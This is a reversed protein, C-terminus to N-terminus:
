RYQTGGFSRRIDDLIAQRVELSLQDRGRKRLENVAPAIYGRGQNAAEIGPHQVSGFVVRGDPLFSFKDPNADAVEWHFALMRHGPKPRITYKKKTGRRAHLGSGYEQARADSSGYNPRAPSTPYARRDATIRIIFTGDGKDEVHSSIARRLHNPAFSRALKTLEGAWARARNKLTTSLTAM